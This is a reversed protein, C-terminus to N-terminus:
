SPSNNVESYPSPPPLNQIKCVMWDGIDSLFNILVFSFINGNLFMEKFVTAESGVSFSFATASIIFSLFVWTSIVNMSSGLNLGAFFKVTLTLGLWTITLAGLICLLMLQPLQLELTFKTLTIPTIIVSLWIIVAFFTVFGYIKRLFM